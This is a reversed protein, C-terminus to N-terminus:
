PKWKLFNSILALGFRQCKEPHFQ